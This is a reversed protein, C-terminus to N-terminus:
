RSAAFLAITKQYVESRNWSALTDEVSGVIDVRGDEGFDVGFREYSSPLFLTQGLEGAWAGVM